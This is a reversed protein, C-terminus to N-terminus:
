EAWEMTENEEYLIEDDKKGKNENTTLGQKRKWPRLAKLNFPWIRTIKIKLYKKKTLIQDM